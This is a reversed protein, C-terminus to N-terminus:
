GVLRPPGAPAFDGGAVLPEIVTPASIGGALPGDNTASFIASDAIAAAEVAFLLAVHPPSIRRLLALQGLGLAGPGFSGPKIQVVVAHGRFVNAALFQLPDITAPLSDATPQGAPNPRRDLCMALTKGAAIGRAHAQDWFATVDNPNGALPFSLRTYGRVTTVSVPVAGRSFTLESGAGPALLSDDLAASDLWSPVIGRNFEALQFGDGLPDGAALIDGIKVAASAGSGLLYIAKDTAVFPRNFDAGIIQVVENDTGAIPSGTAAALARMLQLIASGGAVADLAANCLERYERSSPLALGVQFGVHNLILDEDYGAGYLWLTLEDDGDIPMIAFAPNDFPDDRFVIRDDVIGFDVGRVLVAGPSEMRNFILSVEALGDHPYSSEGFIGPAGYSYDGNFTAVVRPDGYRLSTVASSVRDARRIVLSRWRFRRLVPVTERAVCDYAVEVDDGIQGAADALARCFRRIQDSGSYASTWFGGLGAFLSEALDIEDLVQGIVPM